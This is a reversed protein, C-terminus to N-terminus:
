VGGAGAFHEGLECLESATLELRALLEGTPRASPGPGLRVNRPSFGVNELCRRMAPGPREASQLTVRLDPRARRLLVLAVADALTQM